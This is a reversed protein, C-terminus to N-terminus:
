KNLKVNVSKTPTHKNPLYCDRRRWVTHKLSFAGNVTTQYKVQIQPHWLCLCLAKVSAAYTEAFFAANKSRRAQHPTIAASKIAQRLRNNTNEPFCHKKTRRCCCNLTCARTATPSRALLCITLNAAFHTGLSSKRNSLARVITPFDQARITVCESTSHLPPFWDDKMQCCFSATLPTPYALPKISCNGDLHYICYIM